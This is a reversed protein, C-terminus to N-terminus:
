LLDGDEVIIPVQQYGDKTSSGNTKNNSTHDNNALPRMEINADQKNARQRTPSLQPSKGDDVMTMSMQTMQTNSHSHDRRSRRLCPLVDRFHALVQSLPLNIQSYLLMHVNVADFDHCDFESRTTILM